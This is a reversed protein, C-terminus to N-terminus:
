KGEVYECSANCETNSCTFIIVSGDGDLGLEDKSIVNEIIMENDCFYCKM